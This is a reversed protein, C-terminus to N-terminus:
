KSVVFSIIDELSEVQKDRGVGLNKLQYVTVEGETDGVLVCDTGSAFLLSTVAAAARHVVTPLMINLNLDWIEVMEGNIAAFVTSSNPSWRVTSVTRQTSKFSMVPDSCDQKWLQITWDSSCSLFVDPSFPSWEVHNVPCFHKKYTLLVNQSNSVSCKHILCESTGALYISSDIPHFDVCFGPTMASIIREPKKKNEVAKKKLTQSKKLKMLDICDLGNSSLLWKTVRGDASVAVLAEVRDEGSLAMEQKTWSVQWVPHLHKKHCESSDTLCTINRRQVNYIALTGDLMGVALQGPNNASFDLSTVSRKCQFVREPWTPNKLSWCCILGPTQTEPDCDGYGVALIDQNDKNWAMCTINHGRTLECSFAWLRELTPSSSSGEGGDSQEEIGPKVTSDPDELIPLQRYAALRPQFVNTLVIREMVLLSKEFTESLLILQSNAETNSSNESMELELASSVTSGTCVTSSSSKESRKEHGKITNVATEINDAKEKKQTENQVCFSDYIDWISAMTGEDVMEIKDTQIRINKTTGNSTQMSREVYKDNGMRNRCLEAYQTNKEKMAEADDADESTFTCPIELLSIIETESLCVYVEEDLMEETVVHKVNDGKRPVDSTAPLNIPIDRKSYCDETLSASTSQSSPLTSSWISSFAHVSFSSTSKFHDSGSSSFIEDLIIRDPKAKMDGPEAENVQQPAVDHGHDDLVKVRRPAQEPTKELTRHKRSSGGAMISSRRSHSGTFSLMHRSGQSVPHLGSVSKHMARSSANPLLSSKKKTEM